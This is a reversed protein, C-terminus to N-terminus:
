QEDISTAPAFDSTFKQFKGNEPREISDVYRITLQPPNGGSAERLATFIDQELSAPLKAAAVLRLEYSKDLYQHLQFQRLPNTAANHASAIAGFIAQRYRPTEPPYKLSRRYRGLLNKFAPSKRGCPCPGAASEARDDTDYRILPMAPNNFVTLLLRGGEGPECPRGNDDVIEVLCFESHVHYRGGEPCRAAVVGMENLGYNQRVPVNFANEMKRRMEATLQESVVEIARLKSLSDRGHYAFAIQEMPSPLGLVYGPQHQELWVLRDEVPTSDALGLWPGTHFAGGVVPWATGKITQNAKLKSGKIRPLSSAHRISALTCQPDFRFWRYERQKLFLDAELSQRTRLIKVPQGTTGSTKAIGGLSFGAPLAEAHLQTEMEQVTRRQLMPLSALEGLSTLRHPDFRNRAFLDRYYPVNVACHRLLWKLRAIQM